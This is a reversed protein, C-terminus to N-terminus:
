SGEVSQPPPYLRKTQYPDGGKALLNGYLFVYHQHHFTWLHLKYLRHVAVQREYGIWALLGRLLRM